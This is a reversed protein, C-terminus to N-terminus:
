KMMFPKLRMWQSGNGDDCDTSVEMRIRTMGMWTRMMTRGAMVIRDVGDYWTETADPNVTPDSEDCDTGGYAASTHGDGDEDYDNDWQLESSGDDKQPTQVTNTQIMVTAKRKPLVMEMPM